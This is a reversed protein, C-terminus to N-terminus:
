PTGPIIAGPASLTWERGRPDTYTSGFGPYDEADFRWVVGTSNGSADLREMQVWFIRGEFIPNGIQVPATTNPMGTNIALGITTRVGDVITVVTTSGPEAEVGLVHDGLLYLGIAFDNQQGTTSATSFSVSDQGSHCYFLWEREAMTAGTKSAHSPFYGPLIDDIQSRFTFRVKGTIEMDPTDPTTVVGIMPNLYSPVPPSGVITVRSGSLSMAELGLPIGASLLLYRSPFQDNADDEEFKITTGVEIWPYVVTGVSITFQELANIGLLANATEQAQEVSTIFSSTYSYTRRGIRGISTPSTPLTNEAEARYVVTRDTGEGIVVIHNYIREDSASRDYSGVNSRRGDAGLGARRAVLNLYIPSTLPDVFPRMVLWGRHDFFLEYGFDNAIKKVIEWRSSGQEFTFDKGIEKGTAPVLMDFIGSNAALARIVTAIETGETFTIAETTKSLMMRKTLDRFTVNFNASDSSESIKDAMFSGIQWVLSAGAYNPDRHYPGFTIGRYFKFVKDYWLGGPGISTEPLWISCDGSRREDRAYDINVTGSILPVNEMWLSNDFNHIDLRRYPYIVADEFFSAELTSPPGNMEVIGFYTREVPIDPPGAVSEAPIRAWDVVDFEMGSGGTALVQDGPMYFTGDFIGPTTVTWTDGNDYTDSANLFMAKILTRDFDSIATRFIAGAYFDFNAYQTNENSSGIRIDTFRQSSGQTPSIAATTEGGSDTWLKVLSAQRDVRLCVAEPVATTATEAVTTETGVGALAVRATVAAGSTATVHIAQGGMLSAPQSDFLRAGSPQTAEILGCLMVTGSEEPGFCAAGGVPRKLVASGSVTAVQGAPVALPHTTAAENVIADADIRLVEGTLGINAGNISGRLIVTKVRGYLRDQNADRSGLRIPTTGTSYLSTVISPDTHTSLVTMSTPESLSQSVLFRVTNGGTGNNVDHAVAVWLDGSSSPTVQTSSTLQFENSGDTSWNYILRGAGNLRLLIVKNTSPLWRSFITQNGGPTWDGAALKVMLTMDGTLNYNAHHPIDILEAETQRFDFYGETYPAAGISISDNTGDLLVACRESFTDADFFAPTGLTVGQHSTGSAALNPLEIGVLAGADSWWVVDTLDLRRMGYGQPYTHWRYQLHAGADFNGRHVM